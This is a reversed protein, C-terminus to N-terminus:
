EACYIEYLRALLAGVRADAISYWLVQGEREFRVLGEERLRALHQSLASQSLGVAAALMGVNARGLETLKCLLMLRRQNALLKLVEAVQAAKAEFQSLDLTEM